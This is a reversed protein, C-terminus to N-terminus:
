LRHVESQLDSAERAHQTELTEPLLHYLSDSAEKLSEEKYKAQFLSSLYMVSFFPNNLVWPSVDCGVNLCILM